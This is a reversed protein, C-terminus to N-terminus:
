RHNVSQYIDLFKEVMGMASERIVKMQDYSVIGVNGANWTVAMAPRDRNLTLKVPQYLAITIAFPVLGRGADMMNVHLYLYPVDAATTQKIIDIGADSLKKEIKKQIDVQTMDAHEQLDKNWELNVSVYFRRLGKMTNQSMEVENSQASVIGWGLLIMLGSLLFRKM